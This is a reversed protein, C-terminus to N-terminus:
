NFSFIKDNKKESSKFSFNEGKEPFSSHKNIYPFEKYSIIQDSKINENTPIKNKFIASIRSQRPKQPSNSLIRTLKGKSQISFRNNSDNGHNVSKEDNVELRLSNLKKWAKFCM